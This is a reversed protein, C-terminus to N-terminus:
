LQLFRDNLKLFLEKQLITEKEIATVEEALDILTEYIRKNHDEIQDKIYIQLNLLELSTM